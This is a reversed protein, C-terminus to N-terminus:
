MEPVSTCRKPHCLHERKFSSIVQTCKLWEWRVHLRWRGADSFGLTVASNFTAPDLLAGARPVRPTTRMGSYAEIVNDTSSTGYLHTVNPWCRCRWRGAWASSHIKPNSYINYNWSTPRVETMGRLVGGAGAVCFNVPYGLSYVGWLLASEGRISVTSFDKRLYKFSGSLKLMVRKESDSFTNWYETGLQMFYFPSLHRINPHYWTSWSPSSCM